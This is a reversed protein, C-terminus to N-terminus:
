HFGCIAVWWGTTTFLCSTQATTSFVYPGSQMFSCLQKKRILNGRTQVQMSKIGCVSKFGGVVFDGVKEEWQFEIIKLLCAASSCSCDVCCMDQKRKNGQCNVENRLNKKGHSRIKWGSVSTTHPPPVKNPAQNFIFVNALTPCSTPTTSRTQQHQHRLLMKSRAVINYKLVISPVTSLIIVIPASKM